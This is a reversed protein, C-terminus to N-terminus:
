ESDKREMETIKCKLYNHVNITEPIISFLMCIVTALLVGTSQLGVVKGLYISLPINIIAAIIGLCLQLNVIGMGNMVTAYISSWIMLFYYVAMCLILGSCYDLKKHLWIVSLPEFFLIAAVLILAVPILFMDIKLVTDRIWKYNGQEKAITYKSWLPMMMASFLGNIVGFATYATNYPTVYSPGFLQTIIMNDTTYLVLAAIQLLFFKIGLSGIVNMKEKRFYSFHPVFEKHKKWILGSFIINVILGSLGVWVAVAMLNGNGYLGLIYIGILNLAQTLVTMYSAKESQQVAYLQVKSLALIFNICVFVFSVYLASKVNITTNFISYCDINIIVISGVILVIGVIVSLLVYATSVAYGANRKDGNNVDKALQNRLGNGIGVDFYSIWNVISLITSWIGYCENGLYKLLLPTYLFSLLMGVPKCITNLIMSRRLKSSFLLQIKEKKIHM